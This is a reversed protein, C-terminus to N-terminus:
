QGNTTGGLLVKLISVVDVVAKRASIISQYVVQLDKQLADRKNQADSKITGESTAILTYDNGAQTNVIQQASAIASGANNIALRVSTIDKGKNASESAINQLKSLINTFIGLNKNMEEVRNKNIDNLNTSVRQATLAKEKDKFLDLKKKLAAERTAIVQKLETQRAAYKMRLDDIKAERSAIWMELGQKEMILKGEKSAVKTDIRPKEMGIRAERSATGTTKMTNEQAIRNKINAASSEPIRPRTISTTAAGGPQRVYTPNNKSDTPQRTGTNSVTTNVMEEAGSEPATTSTSDQAFVPSFLSSTITLIVIATAVRKATTM